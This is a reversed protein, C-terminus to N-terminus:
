SDVVFDLKVTNGNLSRVMYGKENPPKTQQGICFPSGEIHTTKKYGLSECSKCTPRSEPYCKWCTNGSRGHPCFNLQKSRNNNGNDNSSSSSYNQINPNSQSSQAQQQQYARLAQTHSSHISQEREKEHRTNWETIISNEMETISYNKTTNLIHELQLRKADLELPLISLLLIKAMDEFDILIKNTKPDAVYNSLVAKYLLDFEEIEKTPESNYTFRKSLLQRLTNVKNQTEDKAYLDKVFTWMEPAKSIHVVKKLISSALTSVMVNLAQGSDV